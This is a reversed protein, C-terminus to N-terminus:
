SGTRLTPFRGMRIRNSPVIFAARGHVRGFEKAPHPVVVYPQIQTARHVRENVGKSLAFDGLNGQVIFIARVPRGQDGFM